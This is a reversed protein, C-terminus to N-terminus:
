AHLVGSIALALIVLLVAVIVHPVTIHKRM